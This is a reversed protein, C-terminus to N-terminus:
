PWGEEKREQLLADARAVGPPDEDALAEAVAVSADVKEDDTLEWEKGAADIAYDEVDYWTNSSIGSIEVRVDVELGDEDPGGPRYITIKTNRTM